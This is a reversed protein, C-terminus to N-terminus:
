CERLKSDDIRFAWTCGLAACQVRDKLTINGALPHVSGDFPNHWLRKKTDDLWFQRHSERIVVQSDDMRGTRKLCHPCVLVFVMESEDPNDVKQAMCLEALCEQTLAADGYVYEIVVKPNGRGLLERSLLGAAINPKGKSDAVAEYQRDQHARLAESQAYQKKKEVDWSNTTTGGKVFVALPMGM